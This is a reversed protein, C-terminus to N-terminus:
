KGCYKVYNMKAQQEIDVRLKALTEPSIETQAFLDDVLHQFYLAAYGAYPNVHQEYCQRKASNFINMATAFDKSLPHTKDFLSKDSYSDYTPNSM